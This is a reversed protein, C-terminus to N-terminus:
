FATHWGDVNDLQATVHGTAMHGVPVCGLVGHVLNTGPTESDNAVHDEFANGLQLAPEVSRCATTRDRTPWGAQVADGGQARAGNQQHTWVGADADLRTCNAARLGCRSSLSFFM